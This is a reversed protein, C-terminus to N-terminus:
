FPIEDDGPPPLDDQGADEPAAPPLSKELRDLLGLRHASISWAYVKQGNKEYVSSVLKGEVFVYSGKKLATAALEAQNGWFTVRHWETREARAGDKKTWQEHTALSIRTYARDAETRGTKIEPGVNGVLQINNRSYM